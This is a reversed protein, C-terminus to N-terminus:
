DEVRRHVKALALAASAFGNATSILLLRAMRASDECMRLRKRAGGNRPRSSATDCGAHWMSGVGSLLDSVAWASSGPMNVTVPSWNACRLVATTPLVVQDTATWVVPVTSQSASWVVWAMVCTLPGMERM